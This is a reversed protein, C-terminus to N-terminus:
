QVFARAKNFPRWADGPRRRRTGLWEGIGKWGKDRYVTYPSSPIDDPKPKKGPLEGECYKRWESTGTLKLKHVFARAQQFPRSHGPRRRGTGLWDATGKWGKDRYIRHAANPIDDPKRKKGRLEGKCYKEWDNQGRIRLGHVFARAEAFPRYKRSTTAVIDTGSWDGWGSWGNDRYVFQPNSPIDNPKPKRGPLRGKCYRHWQRQGSLGLKHVFARAEEFPRWSLKALRKWFKLQISNVFDAVDIKRGISLDFDIPGSGGRPKRGESIGRFYEVIREDQSALSRLISLVEKFTEDEVDALSKVRTDVLVPLVVYGRRKGKSLRLARGLAQVIDVTSRRPDAFLVCDIAPVDVGESLCRANTILGRRAESFEEICRSRDATPMSGHVHFTELQGFQPFASSFADQTDRFAVARAISNHFSVARQIPRTKMAKRLAIVAALMHAEVDGNWRGKDPQVFLNRKVLDAVEQRTVLMTVVQYDSLIPPKAELAEKFTLLDFTEGYVDPDDMSLIRDSQGQYHRETATMFIRRKIRINKDHLLYGFLSADLGVTKHAEDMIGLDFTTGAMKAAQAIAEGSQYTAFVVTTGKRNRRLLTAIENPDTHVDVHLDQALVAADESEGSEKVTPDSCVCIWNIDRRNAVSETAWDRLAQRVLFLSPVAILIKKANLKQAIWYAALSKGAACPWILKGRRERKVDFHRYANRIARQQYPRPKRPPLAITRGALLNHLRRFFAKDLGRWVDGCCFTVRDHLKLKHSYRDATTCVLALSINKCIGFALDTFTSLEKRTVSSREDTKYKSQIAWYEGEKTEALLDIGEDTNPLRLYKRVNAPVEKLLWVHKLKTAYIPDLQLYYKVLLEFCDGKPKESLRELRSKFDQWDNSQRLLNRM